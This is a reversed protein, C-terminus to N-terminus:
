IKKGFRYLHGAKIAVFRDGTLFVVTFDDEENGSLFQIHCDIADDGGMKPKYIGAWLNGANMLGRDHFEWAVLHFDGITGNDDYPAVSWKTGAPDRIEATAAGALASLAIAAVGSALVTRRGIITM